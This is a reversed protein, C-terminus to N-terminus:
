ILKQCHECYVTGRQAVTIKILTRKCKKCFEGGRGYVLLNEQNVGKEGDANIYSSFSTGRNKLGKRLVKQVSKLAGDRKAIFIDNFISGFVAIIKKMTENYFYDNNLM